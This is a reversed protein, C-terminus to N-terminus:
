PSEVARQGAAVDVRVLLGGGVVFFAVLLLVAGRSSGTAQNVVLFVAPGLVGWFKEAVAFLAFYETSRARPIMSAFLSRSLAQTGGQVMGVVVAMVFFHTATRLAWAGIAVGTYVVLGLLVSRKAGIKGALAGFLFAFPIGVFQTLLLAPIMDRETLGIEAGYVAALRVITQIGDNYILFALFFLAAQRFRRLERLTTALQGALARVLHREPRAVAPPEPVRRFLPVSFVLWWIAVSVFSLRAAVDADRLGFRAPALIWALNLALLLGGGVYGLAYGATSVRDMEDDRAIHPLLADYFVFSIAAAVNAAVFLAAALRWDGRGAFATAATTAAGIAISVALLKKRIGARDAAAGLFPAVVAVIVLSLTTAAAFRATAVAPPLDAAAVRAFWGPFVATIMTTVFASNAWDYMAWARLEPRDLGLRRLLPESM